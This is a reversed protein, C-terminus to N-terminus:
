KRMWPSYTVAVLVGDPDLFRSVKQGWPEEKNELLIKWGKQKLEETAAAVDDVDFELWARPVSLDKPWQSKGFCSEAAQELPWVAFGKCGDLQDTHIYGNAEEKFDIGLSDIYLSRSRQMDSSIPGFGAIFLVKM